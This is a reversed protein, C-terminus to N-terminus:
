LCRERRLIEVDVQGDMIDMSNFQANFGACM